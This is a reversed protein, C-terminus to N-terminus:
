SWPSWAILLAIFMITLYFVAFTALLPWRVPYSSKSRDKPIPEEDESHERRQM